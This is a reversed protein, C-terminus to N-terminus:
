KKGDLIITVKTGMNLESEFTIAANIIDAYRKIINLGLGTGQVHGANSARYFRSFLSKQDEISVGIGYDKVSICLKDQHMDASLFINKESYKIANSILNTLINRMLYSDIEWNINQTNDVVNIHQKPKLLQQAEEAAGHILDGIPAAEPNYKIYGGEIKELSLFDNLIMTLNQVNNRIKNLHKIRKDQQSTEPYKGILTASSLISSLPTRFEHSAMSVFNTKLENLQKEKNLAAYIKRETTKEKTINNEVVLVQDIINDVRSLPVCRVRYMKHEEGYEFQREVGSFVASLNDDIDKQWPAPISQLYNKGLFDSPDIGLNRLESGEVFVTTYSRDIVSITANPFNSAITEYLKQSDLLAKQATERLEIEKKLEDTRQEVRQELEEAYGRIIREQIKRRTLDHIIGTFFQQGHMMFESVALRFPFLEGNKKLGEVERGIGIIKPKRTANYNHIYDNHQSKDPESMLMNINNGLVEDKTYGFLTLASTNIDEIIGRSSIVIIGDLTTEFISQYKDASIM